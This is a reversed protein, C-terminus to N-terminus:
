GISNWCLAASRRAERCVISILSYPSRWHGGGGARVRLLDFNGYNWTTKDATLWADKGDSGAPQLMIHSPLQYLGVHHLNITRSIGSALERPNCREDTNIAGYRCGGGPLAAARGRQQRLRRPHGRQDFEAHHRFEASGNVWAQVQSTLNVTVWVGSVPQTPITAQVAPDMKDGMSDWTADTETWDDNLLHIDVPGEPHEKSVYFWATASLINSGASIPSLNYRYMPREIIGTEFRIHLKSDSANNVTPQDSRIWADQDVAITYGVHQGARSDAHHHLQTHGIAPEDSRYIPRLGAAKNAM